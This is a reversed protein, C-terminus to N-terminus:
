HVKRSSITVDPTRLETLLLRNRYVNLDHFQIYPNTLGTGEYLRCLECKIRKIYDRRSNEISDSATQKPICKICAEYYEIADARSMKRGDTLYVEEQLKPNRKMARFMKRNM